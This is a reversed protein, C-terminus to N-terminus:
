PAEKTISSQSRGQMWLITASVGHEYTEGDFHTGLTFKEADACWDLVDEIESQTPVAM